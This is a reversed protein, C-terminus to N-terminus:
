LAELSGEARPGRARVRLAVLPQEVALRDLTGGRPVQPEGLVHHALLDRQAHRGVRDPRGLALGGGLRLDDLAGERLLAPDRDLAGRADALGELHDLRLERLLADLEGVLPVRARLLDLLGGRRLELQARLVAALLDGHADRR